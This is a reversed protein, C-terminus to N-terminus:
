KGKEKRKERRRRWYAAALRLPKTLRWSRSGEYQRRLTELMAGAERIQEGAERMQRELERSRAIGDAREKELAAELAQRELENRLTLELINQQTAGLLTFYRRTKEAFSADKGYEVLRRVQEPPESGTLVVGLGYGHEFAFSPFRASIEDWARLGGYGGMRANIDHMLVVGRASMKPLWSEFDHMMADYSHFGDIHLLDISGERFLPLAEDFTSRILHAFAAYHEHVHRALEEYVDEEYYGAQSDGKWSDVAYCMPTQRLQAVQQCFACFSLGNHTGLETLLRPNVAEVIWFAFPVHTMWASSAVRRPLQLHVMNSFLAAFSEAKSFKESM